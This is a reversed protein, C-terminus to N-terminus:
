SVWETHYGVVTWNENSIELLYFGGWGCLGGCYSSSFIVAHRGDDSKIVESLQWINPWAENAGLKVADRLALANLGLNSIDPRDKQVYCKGLNKREKLSATWNKSSLNVDVEESLFVEYSEFNKSAPVVKIQDTRHTVSSVWKIRKDFDPDNLPGVYPKFVEM